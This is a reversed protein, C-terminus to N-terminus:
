AWWVFDFKLSGTTRFIFNFVLSAILLSVGIVDIEHVVTETVNWSKM